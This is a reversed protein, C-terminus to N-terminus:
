KALNVAQNRPSEHLLLNKIKIIYEALNKDGIPKYISMGIIDQKKDDINSASLKEEAQKSISERKSSSKSSKIPSSSNIIFLYNL